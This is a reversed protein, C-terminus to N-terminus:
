HQYFVQLSRVYIATIYLSADPVVVHDSLHTKNGNLEESAIPLLLQCEPLGSTDIRTSMVVDNVHIDWIDIYILLFSLYM